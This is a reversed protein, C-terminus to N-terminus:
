NLLIILDTSCFVLSHHNKTHTIVCLFVFYALGRCIDNFYDTYFSLWRNFIKNKRQLLAPQIKDLMHLMSVFAAPGAMYIDLCTSLMVKTACHVDGRSRMCPDALSQRDSHKGTSTGPLPWKPEKELLHCEAAIRKCTVCGRSKM